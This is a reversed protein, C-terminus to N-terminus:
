FNKTISKLFMIFPHEESKGLPEYIATFLKVGDRMPIMVEKKTYNKKVWQEDISQSFATTYLFLIILLSLIKKM